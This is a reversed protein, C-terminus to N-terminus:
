YVVRIRATFGHGKVKNQEREQYEASLFVASDLLYTTGITNATITDDSTDTDPDVSDFRYTATWHPMVLGTVEGYFGNTKLTLGLEDSKDQGGVYGAAIDLPDVPAFNGTFGYRNFKDKSTGLAAPDLVDYSTHGDYYFANATNRSGFLQTAQVLVDTGDGQHVRAAGGDGTFGNSAALSVMSSMIKGKTLTTHMFGVEALPLMHGLGPGAFGGISSPAGEDLVLPASLTMSGHGAKQWLLPQALGVRGIWQCGPKGWNGQFEANELEFEGADNYPILLAQTSYHEGFCTGAILEVESLQASSKSEPPSVSQTLNYDFQGAIALAEGVTHAPLAKLTLAGNEDADPLRFGSRRFVMGVNNLRAPNPSHCTTCEVGYRRAYAPTANADHSAVIATVATLLTVAITGASMAFGNLRTPRM